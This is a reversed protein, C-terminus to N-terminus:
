DTAASPGDEFFVQRLTQKAAEENVRRLATKIRQRTEPSLVKTQLMSRLAIYVSDQQSKKVKSDWKRQLCQLKSKPTQNNGIHCM